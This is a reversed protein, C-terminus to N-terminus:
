LGAIMLDLGLNVDMIGRKANRDIKELEKYIRRLQPLKFGDLQQMGKQVVFPHLKVIKAVEYHSVKGQFYFEAIKLLNRFQYIYMSLVYFPDDGQDLQEHLMKLAQERNGFSIFEITKFINAEVSSNILRAIQDDLDKNFEDKGIFSAIKLIEKDISFLNGNKNSILNNLIDSTIKIGFFLFRDEVWKKIQGDNLKKFEENKANTVLWKFAKDNRKPPNNEWFIIWDESSQIDNLNDALFDIMENKLSAEKQELFNKVTILSNQSFLGKNRLSAKLKSSFNDESFDFVSSTANSTNKKFFEEKLQKLKETSRFNDEGYLFIIM